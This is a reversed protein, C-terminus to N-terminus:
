FGGNMATALNYNIAWIIGKTILAWLGLSLVVWPAYRKVFTWRSPAMGPKITKSQRDRKRTHRNM